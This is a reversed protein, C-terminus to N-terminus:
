NEIFFSAGTSRATREAFRLSLEFAIAAVLARQPIARV